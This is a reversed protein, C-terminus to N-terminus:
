NGKILEELAKDPTMNKQSSQTMVSSTSAKLSIDSITLALGSVSATTIFQRRSLM